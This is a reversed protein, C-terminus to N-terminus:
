NAPPRPLPCCGPAQLAPRCGCGCPCACSPTRSAKLALAAGLAFCGALTLAYLCGNVFGRM